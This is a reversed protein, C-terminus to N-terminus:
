PLVPDKVWPALGPILGSDELIGIPNMVQQAVVPVERSVKNCFVRAPLFFFFLLLRGRLQYVKREKRKSRISIIGNSPLGDRPLKGAM